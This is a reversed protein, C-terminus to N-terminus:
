LEPVELFECVKSLHTEIPFFFWTPSLPLVIDPYCSLFIKKKYSVAERDNLTTTDDRTGVLYELTERATARSWLNEVWPDWGEPYNGLVM